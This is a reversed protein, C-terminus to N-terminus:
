LPGKRAWSSGGFPGRTRPPGGNIGHDRWAGLGPLPDGEARVDQLFPWPPRPSLPLLGGGRHSSRGLGGGGVPQHPSTSASPILCSSVPTPRSSRQSGSQAILFPPLSPYTIPHGSVLLPQSRKLRREGVGAPPSPAFGQGMNPPPFFPLQGPTFGGLPRIRAQEANLGLAGLGVWARQGPRYWRHGGPLPTDRGFGLAGGLSSVGESAGAIRPRSM